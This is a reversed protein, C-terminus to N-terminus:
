AKTYPLVITSRRLHSLWYDMTSSMTSRLECIATSFKKRVGCNHYCFHTVRSCFWSGKLPSKDDRQCSKIYDRKTCFKLARADAKGSIHIPGWFNLVHWTVYGRGKWPRNTTRGSSSAILTCWIHMFDRHKSVVFIYSLRRFICFNPHNPPKPTVWSSLFCRWKISRM